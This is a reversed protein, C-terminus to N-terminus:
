SRANDGGSLPVPGTMVACEADSQFGDGVHDDAPSWNRDYQASYAAEPEEERHREPEKEVLLPLQSQRRLENCVELSARLEEFNMTRDEDLLEGAGSTWAV